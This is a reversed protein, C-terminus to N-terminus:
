DVPWCPTVENMLRTPDPDHAGSAWKCHRAEHQVVVKFHTALSDTSCFSLRDLRIRIHCYIGELNWDAKGNDPAPLGPDLEVTWEWGHGTTTTDVGEVALAEVALTRYPEPLASVDAVQQCGVLVLAAIAILLTHANM